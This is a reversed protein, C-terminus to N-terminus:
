RTNKDIKNVSVGLYTNFDEEDTLQFESKLSSLEEDIYMIDKSFLIADDVYVLIIVHELYFLCPDLASQRFDRRLLSDKLYLFWNSGAQRLGYLSMLLKLACAVECNIKYGRPPEMYLEEHDKLPAQCCALFM